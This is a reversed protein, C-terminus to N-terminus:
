HRPHAAGAPCEHGAAVAGTNVLTFATLEDAIHPRKCETLRRCVACALAYM